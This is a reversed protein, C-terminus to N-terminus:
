DGKSRQMQYDRIKQKEQMTFFGGKTKALWMLEKEYESCEDWCELVTSADDNALAEVIAAATPELAKRSEKTEEQQFMRTEDNEGTEICFLKLIAYKTAYSLAKGPAKDGNDDAHSEIVITVRDAGDDINVFNIEYAAQYRIKAKGTATKGDIVESYILNPFMMIGHEILAPRVNAVVEDHTVAKYSAGGGNISANKQIYRVEKMVNSIRQYINLSMDFEGGYLRPLLAAM